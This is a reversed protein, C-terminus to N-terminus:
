SIPSFLDCCFCYLEESGSGHIEERQKEIFEMLRLQLKPWDKKNISFATTYHVGDKSNAISLARTRWNIHNLANFSSERSIFLNKGSHVYRSGKKEVLQMRMLEQLIDEIEREPLRLRDVLAGISQFSEISTLIHVAGFAWSSYYRGKEENSLEDTVERHRIRKTLVHNEQAMKDLKRKLLVRASSSGARDHLLLHLFYNKESESMNLAEGLNIIHDATLQVKGNLAQSLYTRDCGASQALEAVAGRTEQSSIYDRLFSKYDDYEFINLRM